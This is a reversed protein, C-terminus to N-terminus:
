KKWQTCHLKKKDLAARKSGTEGSVVLVVKRLLANRDSAGDRTSRHFSKLLGLRGGKLGGRDPEGEPMGGKGGGHYRGTM